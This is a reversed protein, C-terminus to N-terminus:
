EKEKGTMLDRFRNFDDSKAWKKLAKKSIVFAGDNVEGRKVHESLELGAVDRLFAPVKLQLVPGEESNKGKGTIVLIDRFSKTDVSSLLANALLMCAPAERMRHLDWQKADAILPPLFGTSVAEQVKKRAEPYRQNDYCTKAITRYIIENPRIGCRKMEDLHRIAVEVYEGGGKGCASIVASFVVVNPMIGHAKMEAFLALAKEAQGGKECASITANFSMVTPEVGRSQMENLLEIAKEWNRAKECASIAASYSVVNPCLKYKRGDGGFM